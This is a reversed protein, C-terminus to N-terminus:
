IVTYDCLSQSPQATEDKKFGIAELAPEIELNSMFVRWILGSSHNEIQMPVQHV